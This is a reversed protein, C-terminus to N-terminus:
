DFELPMTIITHAMWHMHGSTDAQYRMLVNGTSMRYICIMMFIICCANMGTTMKQTHPLVATPPRVLRHKLAMATWRYRGSPKAQILASRGHIASVTHLTDM